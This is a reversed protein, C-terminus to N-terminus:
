AAMSAECTLVARAKKPPAARPTRPKRNLTREQLVRTVVPVLRELKYKLVVAAAGMGVCRSSPDDGMAGSLFIVPVGPQTRKLGSMAAAGSYAPINYDCLVLDFKGAAAVSEFQEGSGALMIDCSLGHSELTNRILRAARPNDELHLLRLRPHLSTM